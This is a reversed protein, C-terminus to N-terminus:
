GVRKEVLEWFPSTTDIGTLTTIERFGIPSTVNIETLYGGIIDIGCILLNKEKLIPSLADCITQEHTTLPATHATGGAMLNARISGEQPVRLFAGIVEGDILLIRKDGKRVEPIFRQIVVPAQHKQILSQAKKRFYPNDATFHHVGEGGFLYLPKLIVEGHEHRFTELAEIDATICTPPAFNSFAFPFIKEPAHLIASPDNIVLTHPAVYELAYLATIYEMNFPPDNRILIVDFETLNLVTDAGLQYFPDQEPTLTVQRTRATVADHHLSLESPHFQYLTHGRAHATEMLTLTNNKLPNVESLPEMQFAIKLPM